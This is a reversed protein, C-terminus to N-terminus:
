KDADHAAKTDPEVVAIKKGQAKRREKGDDAMSADADADEDGEVEVVVKTKQPARRPLWASGDDEGIRLLDSSRLAFGEDGDAGIPFTAHLAQLYVPLPPWAAVIDINEGERFAIGAIVSQGLVPPLDNGLDHMGPDLAALLILIGPGDVTAAATVAVRGEDDRSAALSPASETGDAKQAFAPTACLALFLPLLANRFTKM